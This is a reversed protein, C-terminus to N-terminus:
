EAELGLEQEIKAAVADLDVTNAVHKITGDAGVLVHFPPSLWGPQNFIVEAYETNVTIEPDWLVPFTLGLWDRFAVMTEM